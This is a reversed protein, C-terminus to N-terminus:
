ARNKFLAGTDLVPMSADGVMVDITKGVRTWMPEQVYPVGHRECVARVKPQIKRYQLVSM